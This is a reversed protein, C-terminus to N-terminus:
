EGLLRNIRSEQLDRNQAMLKEARLTVDCLNINQKALSLVFATQANEQQREEPTLNGSLTTRIREGLIENLEMLSIANSSDRTYDSKNM